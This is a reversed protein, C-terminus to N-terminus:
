PPSFEGKLTSCRHLFFPSRSMRRGEGWRLPPAYRRGQPGIFVGAPHSFRLRGSVLQLLATHASRSHSSNNLGLTETASRLLTAPRRFSM